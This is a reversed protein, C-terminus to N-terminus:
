FGEKSKDIGAQRLIGAATGTKVEKAHRGVPFQRNTAPSYWIEHNGGDRVKYCGHAKLIKLLESTKM